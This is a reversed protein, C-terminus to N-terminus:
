SPPLHPCIISSVDGVILLLVLHNFNIASNIAFSSMKISLLSVISDVLLPVDHVHIFPLTFWGFSFETLSESEVDFSWEVNHTLHSFVSEKIDNVVSVHDDLSSISSVGLGPPEMLLRQCDLGLQVVL